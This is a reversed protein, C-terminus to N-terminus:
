PCSFGDLSSRDLIPRWKQGGMRIPFLSLQDDHNSEKKNLTNRIKM